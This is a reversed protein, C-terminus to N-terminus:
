FRYLAYLYHRIRGSQFSSFTFAAKFHGIKANRRTGGAHTRMYFPKIYGRPGSKSIYNNCSEMKVCQPELGSNLDHWSLLLDNEGHTMNQM